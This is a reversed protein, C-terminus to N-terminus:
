STDPAGAYPTDISWAAGVTLVGTSNNGSADATTTGNGEDLHYLAVTNADPSFNALQPAFSATYRVVNSIRVEDILGNFYEAIADAAEGIGFAGTSSAPAATNATPGKVS